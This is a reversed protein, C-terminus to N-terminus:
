RESDTPGWWWWWCTMGEWTRKYYGGWVQWVSDELGRYLKVCVKSSLQIDRQLKGERGRGEEEGRGQSPSGTYILTHSHSSCDPGLHPYIASHGQGRGAASGASLSINSISVMAVNIGHDM